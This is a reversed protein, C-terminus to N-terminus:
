IRVMIYLKQDVEVDIELKTCNEVINDHEIISPEISSVKM